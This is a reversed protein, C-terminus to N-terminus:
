KKFYKEPVGSMMCLKQFVSPNPKDAWEAKLPIFGISSKDSTIPDCGAIYMDKYFHNEGATTGIIIQTMKKSPTFKPKCDEWIKKMSDHYKKTCPFRVGSEIDVWYYQKDEM